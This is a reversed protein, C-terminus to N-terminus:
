AADFVSTLDLAPEPSHFRSVRSYALLDDIMSQMRRSGELAFDLWVRAEDDVLEPRHTALLALPGSIARLPESLDHSVAFALTELDRRLLVAEDPLAAVTLLQETVGTM